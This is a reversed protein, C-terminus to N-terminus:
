TAWIRPSDSHHAANRDQANSDSELVIIDRNYIM